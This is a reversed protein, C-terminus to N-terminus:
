DASFLPAMIGIVPPTMLAIMLLITKISNIKLILRQIFSHWSQIRILRPTNTIFFIKLKMVM